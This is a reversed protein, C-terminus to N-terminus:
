KGEIVWPQPLLRNKGGDDLEVIDGAPREKEICGRCYARIHSGNQKEGPLFHDWIPGKSPPM